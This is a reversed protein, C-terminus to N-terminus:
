DNISPPSSFTFVKEVLEKYYRTRDALSRDATVTTVGGRFVNRSRLVVQEISRAPSLKILGREIRDVVHSYLKFINNHSHKNGNISFSMLDKRRCEHRQQLMRVQIVIQKTSNAPTRDKLLEIMQEKTRVTEMGELQLLQHIRRKDSEHTKKAKKEMHDLQASKADSERASSAKYLVKGAPLSMKILMEAFDTFDALMEDLWDATHNTTWTALTTGSHLSINNNATLVADVVGFSSEVRDSTAPTKSMAERMKTDTRWHELRGGPLFERCGGEAKSELREKMAVAAEKLYLTTETDEDPILSEMELIDFVSSYMTQNGFLSDLQEKVKRKQRFRKISDTISNNIGAFINFEPNFLCSPEDMLKISEEYARCWLPAVDLQSPAKGECYKKSNAVVRLPQTVQVFM